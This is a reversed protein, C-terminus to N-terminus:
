AGSALWLCALSLERTTALLSVGQLNHLLAWTLQQQLCGVLHQGGLSPGLAGLCVVGCTGLLTRWAAGRQTCAVSTCSAEGDPPCAFPLALRHSAQLRRRAVTMARLLVHRSSSGLCHQKQSMCSKETDMSTDADSMPQLANM